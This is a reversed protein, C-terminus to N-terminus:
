FNTVDDETGFLRDSGASILQFRDANAWAGTKESKQAIVRQEPDGPDAPDGMLYRGEKGYSDPTFYAIPNGWGDVVELLQSVGADRHYLTATSDGDTNALGEERVNSGEPYSKSHLAAFLAEAGENLDNDARIKLPALTCPPPGGKKTEYSTILIELEAITASTKAVYGQEKQRGFYYIALSMLLGLIALVALVEILTFGGRRGRAARRMTAQERAQEAAQGTAARAM